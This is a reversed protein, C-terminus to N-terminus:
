FNGKTRGVPKVVEPYSLYNELLPRDLFSKHKEVFDDVNRPRRLLKYKKKVYKNFNRIENMEDDTLLRFDETTKLVASKELMIKQLEELYKEPGSSWDGSEM